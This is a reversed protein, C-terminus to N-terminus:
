SASQKLHLLTVSACSNVIVHERFAVKQSIRSFITGHFFAVVTYLKSLLLAPIYQFKLTVIHYSFINRYLRIWSIGRIHYEFIIVYM